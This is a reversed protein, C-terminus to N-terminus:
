GHHLNQWQRHSEETEGLEIAKMMDKLRQDDERAM